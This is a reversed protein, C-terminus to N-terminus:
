LPAQLQSRQAQLLAPPIEPPSRETFRRFVMLPQQCYQYASSCSCFARPIGAPNKDHTYSSTIKREALGIKWPSVQCIYVLNSCCLPPKTQVVTEETGCLHSTIKPAERPEAAASPTEASSHPGM